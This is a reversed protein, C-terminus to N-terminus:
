QTIMKALKPLKGSSIKKATKKLNKANKKTNIPM